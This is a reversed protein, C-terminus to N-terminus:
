WPFFGEERAVDFIDALGCIYEGDVLVADEALVWGDM